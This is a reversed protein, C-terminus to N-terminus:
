TTAGRYFTDFLLRMESAKHQVRLLPCGDETDGDAPLGALKDMLVDSHMCLLSRHVRFLILQEALIVINGDELYYHEDRIWLSRDEVRPRSARAHGCPAIAVM